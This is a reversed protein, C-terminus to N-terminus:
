IKLQNGFVAVTMTNEKNAVKKMLLSQSLNIFVALFNKGTLALVLPFDTYTSNFFASNPKILACVVNIDIVVIITNIPKSTKLTSYAMVIASIIPKTSIRGYKPVPIM